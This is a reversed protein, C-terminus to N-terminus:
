IVATERAVRSVGASLQCAGCQALPGCLVALPLAVPVGDGLSDGGRGGRGSSRTRVASSGAGSHAHGDDDSSRVATKAVRHPRVPTLERTLTAHAATATRRKSAASAARCATAGACPWSALCDMLPLVTKCPTGMPRPLSRNTCGFLPHCVTQTCRNRTCREGERQLCASWRCACADRAPAGQPM